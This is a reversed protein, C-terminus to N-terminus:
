KNIGGNLKQMITQLPTGKAFLYGAEGAIDTAKEFTEKDEASIGSLVFDILPIKDAKPLKFGVRIRAFNESGLEAIINRMGNHTGSSGKERIRVTGAPIDFDDYIVILDKLDAKYFTMVERVAIGSLNMYTLPKLFIVKERGIKCEAVMGSFKTTSFDAQALRASKEVSKFGLNHYTNEYKKDPNGLGVIIKM